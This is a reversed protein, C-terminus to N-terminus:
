SSLRYSIRRVDGDASHAVLRVANPRNLEVRGDKLEVWPIRVQSNHCVQGRGGLGLWGDDLEARIRWRLRSGDECALYGRVAVSGSKRTMAGVAGMGGSAADYRPGHLFAASCISTRGKILVVMSDGGSPGPVDLAVRFEHDVVDVKVNTEESPGSEVGHSYGGRWRGNEMDAGSIVVRTLDASVREVRL